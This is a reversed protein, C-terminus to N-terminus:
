FFDDASDSSAGKKLIEIRDFCFGGQKRSLEGSSKFESRKENYLIRGRFTLGTKVLIEAFQVSGGQRTNHM